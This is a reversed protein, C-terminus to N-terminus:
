LPKGTQPDFMPEGSSWSTAPNPAAPPRPITPRGPPPESAPPPVPLPPRKRFPSESYKRGGDPDATAFQPGPSAAALDQRPTIEGTDSDAEATDDADDYAPIAFARRLARREARALAMEPGNGEVAQREDKGCGGKYTFPHAMDKRYVSVTASWGHDSERQEDVVLGDLQGSAHAIKIMGDRTVYVRNGSKTKIVGVEGLLPDLGYRRCLLVLARSEVSDPNLGLYRLTDEGVTIEATRESLRALMASTREHDAESTTM